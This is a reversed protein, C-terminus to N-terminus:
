QATGAFQKILMSGPLSESGSDIQYGTSVKASQVASTNWQNKNYGWQASIQWQKKRATKRGCEM